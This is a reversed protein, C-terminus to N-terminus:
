RGLSQGRYVLVAKKGHRQYGGHYKKDRHVQSGQVQVYSSEPGIFDKLVHIRSIWSTGPTM